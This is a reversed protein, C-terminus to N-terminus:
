TDSDAPTSSSQQPRTQRPSVTRHHSIIYTIPRWMGDPHTKGPDQQKYEANLKTAEETLEIVYQVIETRRFLVPVTSSQEVPAIFSTQLRFSAHTSDNSNTAAGPPPPAPLLVVVTTSGYM